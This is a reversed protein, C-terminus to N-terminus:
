QYLLMRSLITNMKDLMLKGSANVIFEGILGKFWPSRLIALLIILPILYLIVYRMMQSIIPSFDM